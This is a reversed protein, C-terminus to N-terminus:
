GNTVRVDGIAPAHDNALVDCYAFGGRIVVAGTRCAIASRFMPGDHVFTHFEGREGCPDVSCPLDALLADDFSRGAFSADLIRPDVCVVTARLGSAIMDRALTSTNRGWLPFVARKGVLDLQAERYERIGELFLDAFAVHSITDFPETNLTARMRDAYLDHPCITPLWVKIVPLGIAQAQRDLLGERVGSISVRLHEENLTTLLARVEFAPDNLLTWLGFASDKGASWSFVVPTPTKGAAVNRAEGSPQIAM